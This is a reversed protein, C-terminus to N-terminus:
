QEHMVLWDEGVGLQVEIKFNSDSTWDRDFMISKGVLVGTRDDPAAYETTEGNEDTVRWVCVASCYTDGIRYRDSYLM